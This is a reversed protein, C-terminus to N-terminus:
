LIFGGRDLGPVFYKVPLIGNARFVWARNPGRLFISRSSRPDARKERSLSLATATLSDFWGRLEGRPRPSVLQTIAGSSFDVAAM